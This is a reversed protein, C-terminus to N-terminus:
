QLSLIINKNDVTDRPVTGYKKERWYINTGDRLVVTRDPLQSLFGYIVTNTNYGREPATQEIKTFHFTSYWDFLVSDVGERIGNETGPSPIMLVSCSSTLLLLGKMELIITCDILM